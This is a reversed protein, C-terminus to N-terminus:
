VRGEGGEGFGMRRRAPRVGHANLAACYGNEGLIFQVDRATVTDDMPMQQSVKRWVIEDTLNQLTQYGEFEPSASLTKVAKKLANQAAQTVNFGRSFLQDTIYYQAEAQPFPMHILEVPTHSAFRGM